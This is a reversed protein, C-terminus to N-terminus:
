DFHGSNTRTWKEETLQTNRSTSQKEAMSRLIFVFNALIWGAQSWAQGYEMNRTQKYRSKNAMEIYLDM